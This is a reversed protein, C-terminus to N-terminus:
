IHSQCAGTVIRCRAQAVDVEGIGRSDRMRSLIDSEIGCFRTRSPLAVDWYTRHSVSFLARIREHIIRGLTM